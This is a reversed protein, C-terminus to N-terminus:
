TKTNAEVFAKWYNFEQRWTFWVYIPFPKLERLIVFPAVAPLAIVFVAWLLIKKSLTM